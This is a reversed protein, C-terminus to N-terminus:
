RSSDVEPRPAATALRRLLSEVNEASLDALATADATSFEGVRTRRLATLYGGIGLAQGIDRAIARIYTGKGCAIRLHLYPFEYGLVDIADIRVPRPKVAVPLGRRALTYARRGGVRLASYDPPLQEVTGILPAIAKVVEELAPIKASESPTEPSTPDLTPTTAGLKVTAEYEKPSGMLTDFLRTSKGILLLLVGTAFPDLTGGHGIKTGRPLMYKVRTVAKASSMGPPKDLNLIGDLM